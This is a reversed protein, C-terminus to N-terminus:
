YDIYEDNESPHLYSKLMHRIKNRIKNRLNAECNSKAYTKKPRYFRADSGCMDNFSRATTCYFYETDNMREEGIVHHTVTNNRNYKNYRKNEKKFLSCKGYDTSYENKVNWHFPTIPKKLFFECNACKKQSNYPQLSYICVVGALILIYLM